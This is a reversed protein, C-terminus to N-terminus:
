RPALGRDAREQDELCLRTAPVAELREEDIPRGCVECVGYTGRDVREFAAEVEARQRQLDQELGLDLEEEFLESAEDAPHQDVHSLESQESAVGDETLREASGALSRLRERERELLRRASDADV